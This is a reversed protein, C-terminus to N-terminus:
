SIPKKHNYQSIFFKGDLTTKGKILIPPLKKGYGGYKVNQYSERRISRSSTELPTIPVSELITNLRQNSNISPLKLSVIAPRLVKREQSNLNELPRIDGSITAVASLRRKLQHKM